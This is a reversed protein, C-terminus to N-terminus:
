VIKRRLSIRSRHWSMFAHIPFASLLFATGWLAPGIGAGWIAWLSYLAGVGALAMLLASPPMAGKARLRLAALSSFLYAYLSATTALLAIFTFLQIMSKEFNMAVTVVLVASSVIHARVPTGNASTVGFWAPFVGGRAMALPLEGQLMVWGNLAGFGSLAAFAAIVPGAHGGWYRDLFDAIPVASNALAGAPMTLQVLSCVAVFLLGTFATGILTARPITRPADHVKDAPVTASELGLLGWLTLTAAATIGGAGIDATRFPALTVHGSGLALVAVLIVAALPVLKAITLVIQIGGASKTGLCNIAAIGVIVAVTLVPPLAHIRAIVPFLVGLYSVSGVALAANGIVLSLWYTWAVAFGMAPGFAAQTYAYPGGAQPFARALRAFVFALALAGGITLLWGFVANWGYPALSAPLLFVGSGIQNGVVLAICMWFGMPRGAGAKM